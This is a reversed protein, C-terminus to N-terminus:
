QYHYVADLTGKSKQLGFLAELFFIDMGHFRAKRASEHSTTQKM